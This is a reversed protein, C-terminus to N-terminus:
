PAEGRLRAIELAQSVITARLEDVGPIETNGVVARISLPRFLSEAEGKLRAIEDVMGALEEAHAHAAKQWKEREQLARDVGAVVRLMNGHSWRDGGHDGLDVDVLRATRAVVDRAYGGEANEAYVADYAAEKLSDLM